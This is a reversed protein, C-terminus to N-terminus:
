QRALAAHVESLLDAYKMTPTAAQQRSEETAFAALVADRPLTVGARSLLPQLAAHIGSEWDILTGYCDFTLTTFDTLSMLVRTGQLTMALLSATGPDLGPAAEGRAIVANDTRGRPVGRWILASREGAG